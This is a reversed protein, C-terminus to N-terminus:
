GTSTGDDWVYYLGNYVFAHSIITTGSNANRAIQRQYHVLTAGAPNFVPTARNCPSNTAIYSSDQKIHIMGNKFWYFARWRWYYNIRSGSQHNLPLDDYAPVAPAVIFPADPVIMVKKSQLTYDYQISMMIRQFSYAVKFTGAWGISNMNVVYACSQMPVIDGVFWQYTSQEPLDSYTPGIMPNTYPVRLFDNILPDASGTRLDDYDPVGSHPLQWFQNIAIVETTYAGSKTM